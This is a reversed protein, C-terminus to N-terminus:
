WTAVYAASAPTGKGARGLANSDATKPDGGSNSPNRQLGPSAMVLDYHERQAIERM